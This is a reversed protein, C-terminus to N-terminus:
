RVRGIDGGVSRESARTSVAADCRLVDLLAPHSGLRCIYRVMEDMWLAPVLLDYRHTESEEDFTMSWAVPEDQWAGSLVNYWQSGAPTWRLFEVTAEGDQVEGNHMWRADLPVRQGPSVTLSM